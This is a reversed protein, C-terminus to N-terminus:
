NGERVVVYSVTTALLAPVMLAAQGTTEALFVVPVLLSEHTAGAMAAAGVLTLYGQTGLHLFGDFATGLAAGMALSPLWLGGIGGGAFTLATAALKLVLFAAAAAPLAEGRLLAQILDLGGGLTVPLGHWIVHGPLALLSLGLGAALGRWRLPVRSLRRKLVRHVKVYLTAALGCCLGLLLSWFLERGSLRFAASPLPLLPEMGMFGTFVVYGSASSVLCPILSEANLKGHHEAALLAGSLPARFVAALASAAGARAMVLPPRALRRVVGLYRSSSRLVRHYLLGMAAGFWKGPGEVGASGGFGITFACGVVKGLTRRLPFAAYPDVRATDMDKSLSVEGIGTAALWLTTLFLGVAPLGLTLRTRGGLREVFPEFRSLGLLALAVMFGVWAGLPLMVGVIQRTHALFRLRATRTPLLDKTLPLEM